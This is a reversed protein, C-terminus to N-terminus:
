AGLQTVREGVRAATQLRRAFVLRGGGASGRGLREFQLPTRGHLRQDAAMHVFSKHGQAAHEVRHM